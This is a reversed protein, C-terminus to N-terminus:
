WNYTLNFNYQDLIVPNADYYTDDDVVYLTGTWNNLEQPSHLFEIFVVGNDVAHPETRLVGSYVDEYPASRGDFKNERFVLYIPYDSRNNIYLEVQLTTTGNTEHYPTIEGVGIALFENDVIAAYGAPVTSSAVGGTWGKASGGGGFVNLMVFVGIGVLVVAAAAVIGIILGTKKKKPPAAPPYAPAPAYSQQPQQQPPQQQYQQPQPPQQQQPAGQYGDYSQQGQQPAYEPQAPAPQPAYEPIPQAQAAPATPAAAFDPAPPAEGYAPAPTPV